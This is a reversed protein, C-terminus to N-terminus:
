QDLALWLTSATTSSRIRSVMVCRPGSPEPNHILESRKEDTWRLGGALEVQPIIQWRLQGFASYTKIDVDTEGNQILTPLRYASNGRGRM